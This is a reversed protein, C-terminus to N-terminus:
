LHKKSHTAEGPHNMFFWLVSIGQRHRTIRLYPDLCHDPAELAALLHGVRFQM